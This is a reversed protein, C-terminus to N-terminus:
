LSDIVAKRKQEYEKDTILGDDKLKKLERLQQAYKSSDSNTQPSSDHKM